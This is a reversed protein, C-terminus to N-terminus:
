GPGMRIGENAFSAGLELGSVPKGAPDVVRIKLPSPPLLTLQTANQATRGARDELGGVGLQRTGPSWSAFHIMQLSSCLVKGDPGTVGREHFRDGLRLGPCGGRPTGGCRRHGRARGRARPDVGGPGHLEQPRCGCLNEPNDSVERGGFPRAISCRKRFHGPGSFSWFRGLPRCGGAREVLRGSGGDGAGGALRGAHSCHRRDLRARREGAQRCPAPEDALSVAGVLICTMVLSALPLPLRSATM